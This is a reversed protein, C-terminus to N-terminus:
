RSRRNSRHHPQQLRQMRLDYTHACFYTKKLQDYKKVNSWYQCEIVTCHQSLYLAARQQYLQKMESTQFLESGYVWLQEIENGTFLDQVCLFLVGNLFIIRMVYNNGKEIIKAFPVKSVWEGLSMMDQLISDLERTPSDPEGSAAVPSPLDSFTM